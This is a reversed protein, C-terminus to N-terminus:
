PSMSATHAAELGTTRGDFPIRMEVCTGEGGRLDLRVSAAEGYCLALRRQVNALGIGEGDARAPGKPPRKGTDAVTIVLVCSAPQEDPREASPAKAVSATITVQGGGRSAAVGHKVANEVLPQLTFAPVVVAHLPAPVDVRVQLREEFRAREIDLYANVLALETGLPVMEGESRMVRRLLETLRLLTQLARPPATQILHGITTLSNFLFHPNLQARLARLEPDTALRSIEQERYRQEFREQTLRLADLRRGLVLCIGELM